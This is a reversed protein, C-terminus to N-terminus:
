LMKESKFYKEAYMHLELACNNRKLTNFHKMIAELMETSFEDTLIITARQFAIKIKDEPHKWYKEKGKTILLTDM